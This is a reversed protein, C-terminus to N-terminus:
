PQGAVPLRAGAAGLGLPTTKVAKTCRVAAERRQRHQTGGNGSGGTRLHADFYCGRGVPRQCLPQVGPRIGLGEVPLAVAAGVAGAQQAAQGTHRHGTGAVATTQRDDTAQAVVAQADLHVAHSRIAAQELWMFEGSNYM